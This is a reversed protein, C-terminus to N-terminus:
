PTGKMWATILRFVVGKYAATKTLTCSIQGLKSGLRPIISKSCAIDFAHVVTNGSMLTTPQRYSYKNKKISLNKTIKKTLM